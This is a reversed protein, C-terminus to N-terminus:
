KTVNPRLTHNGDMLTYTAGFFYLTYRCLSLSNTYTHKIERKLILLGEMHTGSPLPNARAPKRIPATEEGAM